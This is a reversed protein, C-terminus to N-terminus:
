KSCAQGRILFGFFVVGIMMQLWSSLEPVSSVLWAGVGLYKAGVLPTTWVTAASGYWNGRVDMHLGIDGMYVVRYNNHNIFPSGLVGATEFLENNYSYTVGVFSQLYGVGDVNEKTGYNREGPDNIDKIGAHSYLDELESRTAFRFKSYRNDEALFQSVENFSYGETVTPSLWILGSETDVTLTDAGFDQSTRNLLEANACMSVVVLLVGLILKMMWM